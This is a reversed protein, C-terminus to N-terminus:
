NLVRAFPLLWTYQVKAWYSRATRVELASFIQDDDATLFAPYKKGPISIGPFALLLSM